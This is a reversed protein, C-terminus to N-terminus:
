QTSGDIGGLNIDVRRSGVERAVSLASSLPSSLPPLVHLRFLCVSVSTDAKGFDEIVALIEAPFWDYGLM